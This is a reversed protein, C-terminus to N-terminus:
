VAVQVLADEGVLTGLDSSAFIFNDRKRDDFKVTLSAMRDKDSTGIFLNSPSCLVARHPCNLTTGNDEFKKILRDWIDLVIITHGDYESLGFGASVYEFPMTTKGYKDVVDNRLAKFLSNTMMIAHDGKDFIRSDADSLLNDVIGIAVGSERIKTKQLVYTAEENAAIATKQSANSAIIAFLRKWLGDCPQLLKPDIGATVVGGAVKELGSGEEDDGDSTVVNAAKTDGFWSLRWFMETIAKQLLPILIQTWYPTTTLDAKETGTNMGLEALTNELDKYCITKPIEWGGLDWTKEIGTINVGTYTPDCGESPVGVDGISDLYGLKKGDKVNTRMTAVRELDPDNYISTFLLESLDRIAGNDITFEEFNIM